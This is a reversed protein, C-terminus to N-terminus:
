NKGQEGATKRLGALIDRIYAEGEAESDVQHTEGIQQRNEDRFIVLFPKAGEEQNPVAEGFIKSM